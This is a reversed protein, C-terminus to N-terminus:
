RKFEQKGCRYCFRYDKLQAECYDCVKLAFTEPSLRCDMLRIIGGVAEGIGAKFAIDWTIEAQALLLMEEQTEGVTQQHSRALILRHKEKRGMVTEKSGM